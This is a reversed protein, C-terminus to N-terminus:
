GVTFRADMGAAAWAATVRAAEASWRAVDDGAEGELRDRQSTASTEIRLGGELEVDLRGTLDWFGYPVEYGRPTFLEAAGGGHTRRGSLMWRVRGGDFRQARTAGAGLLAVEAEAALDGTGARTTLDVAAAAGGGFSAPRVGPYYWLSGVSGAS